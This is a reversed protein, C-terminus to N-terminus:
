DFIKMEGPAYWTHINKGNKVIKIQAPLNRSCNVLVFRENEEGKESKFRALLLPAEHNETREIKEIGFDGEKFISFGGYEYGVSYTDCYEYDELKLAYFEMLMRNQRALRDFTETRKNFIDVPSNRYSSQIYHRSYVYFWLIGTAGSAVATSIQWRLDDEDPVRYNWHGVSLLTTFLPISNKRAVDGFLRLNEFYYNEGRDQNFYSCQSYYDYCLLDLGTEKVIKDLLSGYENYPVGLVQEFYDSKTFLPLFNVFPHLSPCAAKVLKFARIMDGMDNKAPEDGIHFGYVAPHLGFDAVADNVGRMFEEEGLSTLRRWGTRADCVIVKVNRENLLDLHKIFMAKDHFEPADPNFDCSMVLNFGLDVFDTTMQHLDYENIANYNWLGSKYKM